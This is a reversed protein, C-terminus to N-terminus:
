LDHYIIEVSGNTNEQFHDMSLQGDQNTHIFIDTEFPYHNVEHIIQNLYDIRKETKVSYYYVIHKCIRMLIKHVDYFLTKYQKTSCILIFTPISTIKIVIIVCFYIHINVKIHVLVTVNRCSASFRFNIMM